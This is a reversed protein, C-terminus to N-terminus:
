VADPVIGLCTVYIYRGADVKLHKESVKCTNHKKSIDILMKGDIMFAIEPGDYAVEKMETYEGGVSRGELRMAGPRLRVVVKKQTDVANMSSFVEACQVAEALGGPLTIPQCGDMSLLPSFDPYDELYRRCSLIVGNANKFHVWSRTESIHTMGMGGIAHLSSAKALFQKKIATEINYRILQYNDCTELHTPTVNVCQLKFDSDTSREACAYVTEVAEGFDEHLPSWDSVPDVSGIPLAVEAEMRIKVKRRGGGMSKITFHGDDVFIDVDTEPLKALVDLLQKAAVAGTITFGLGDLPVRVAVEDNFTVVHNDLFCFCSAQQISDKSALGAVAQELRSLFGAREVRM